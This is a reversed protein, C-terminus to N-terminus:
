EQKEFLIDKSRGSSAEFGTVVGEQNRLFTLSPLPFTASFADKSEAKLPIDDFRRHRLVLEDKENSSITYFAELERSFYIGMYMQIDEPSPEWAPEYIRNARHDGNQHLTIHDVKGEQNRHFTVSANVVTLFFTSDSSAFIEVAGQGTAQTILKDEERRFELIFGPAAELEYRGALEDFREPDYVFEGENSPSQTEEIGGM